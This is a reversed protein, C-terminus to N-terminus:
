GVAPGPPTTPAITGREKWMGLRWGLGAFAAIAALKWAIGAAGPPAMRQAVLGAGLATAAVALMRLGRYPMPQVRQATIYTLIAATAYGALTAAAAGMPGHRPVWALNAALAVVAAGAACGILLPTRLALAVGVSAVTYAGLAVAAFALLLAPGAAGRYGEPVLVALVEPAFLGVALAAISSGAVYAGFVRAFLRPAGPAGARAFAFPGYALQFASVTISMVAFFKFAVGYVGVEDLGRFRQLAYRDLATIAGFCFAAPVTPAGYALMRRLTAGDFRPRLHHRVLVLALLACLADGALRGYLMGAVGMGRGVVFWLSLGGVLVTQAINLTIFKWPQFTVRLVDNGYLVVLTFPLTLSGILVYKRYVGGGVFREALPGAALAGVVAVLAVLALRFAFSTSTMRLRAARDPEQYFFRALAGDMGFVLVLAATQSYALVLEGVGFADPALARTLIPVLLLQVARGGVAGLGYVLSEGTLKKLAERL